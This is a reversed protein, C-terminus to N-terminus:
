GHHIQSDVTVLMVMPLEAVHKHQTGRAPGPKCSHNVFVLQPLKHFPSNSQVISKRGQRRDEARVAFDEDGCLSFGKASLQHRM